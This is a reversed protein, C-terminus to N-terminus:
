AARYRGRGVRKLYGSGKLRNMTRSVEPVRKEGIAAAVARANAAKVSKQVAALIRFALSGKQLGRKRRAKRSRPTKGTPAAAPPRGPRPALSLNWKGIVGLIRDLESDIRQREAVLRGIEAILHERDM